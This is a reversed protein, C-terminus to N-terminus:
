LGFRSKQANYNQTIEDASIVRNYHIVNAIDGTYLQNLNNRSAINYNSGNQITNVISTSDSDTVTSLTGNIYLLMGARTKSGDYTFTANNWVGNNYTVTTLRRMVETTNSVLVIGIKGVDAASGSTTNFGLQWGAFTGTILEKSVLNQVTSGTSSTRFWVSVSFAVTGNTNLINGNNVYQTTGNFTFYGGSNFTPSAVLSGTNNNGSLDSWTTGSGPYSLSNGADLNLVLSSTVIPPYTISMNLRGVNSNNALKINGTGNINSFTIPM